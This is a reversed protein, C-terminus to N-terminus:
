LLVSKIAELYKLGHKRDPELIMGEAWENWANIFLFREEDPRDDLSEVARRVHRAVADPTNNILVIARNARRATNDWGVFVAPHNPFKPRGREMMEVSEEYDYVKLGGNPIGLKLNKAFRVWSHGDAFVRPLAGFQPMHDETSDFGLDRMDVIRSHANIGVLYPNGCGNKESIERIVECTARADPLASPKYVLFLPRGNIRIYRPDNFAKCLWEAHKKDDEPSYTQSILVEKDDGLWTRSWSENAWALCFPFDPKKLELIERIPRDLLQEGNFWYHWYCFGHIGHEQALDAQAERSEPLRLDYFGLDGPLIPQHHGTFLPKAKAVNAWETFGKGWWRDNEPIPHFQPLYFAIAKVSKRTPTNTM